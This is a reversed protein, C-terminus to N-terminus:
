AAMNAAERRLTARLRGTSDFSFESPVGASESGVRDGLDGRMEMWSGDRFGLSAGVPEAVDSGFFHRPSM